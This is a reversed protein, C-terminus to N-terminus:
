RLYAALDPIKPALQPLAPMLASARKPVHGPPYTGRLVKAELLERSSGKIAPGLPGDKAPDTHHCAICEALYVQRGRSAPDDATTDCGQLLLLGLLGALLRPTRM